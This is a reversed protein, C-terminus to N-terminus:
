AEKDGKKKVTEELKKIREILTYTVGTLALLVICFTMILSFDVIVM